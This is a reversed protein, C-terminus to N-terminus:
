LTVKTITAAGAADTYTSTSITAGSASASVTESASTAGGASETKSGAAYAISYSGLTYTGTQSGDDKVVIIGANTDILGTLVIYNNFWSIGQFDITTGTFQRQWQLTGSSNWKFLLNDEAGYVNGSSDVASWMFNGSTINLQRQWQQTGSSNYKAMGNYRTGSSYEFAVYVNGSSDVVPNGCAGEASGYLSRAWTVVGSSDTKLLMGKTGGAFYGAAYINGSSDTTGGTFIASSFNYKSSFTTAGTGDFKIIVPDAGNLQGFAIPNGSSDVAGARFRETGTATAKKQWQISGSSNYKSIFADTTSDSQGFLYVNSSSDAGIGYGIESGSGALTRQWTITQDSWKIKAAYALTNTAVQSSIYISDSTPYVGYGTAGTSLYAFFSPTTPTIVGGSLQSSIINLM